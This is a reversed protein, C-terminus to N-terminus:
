VNANDPDELAKRLQDYDNPSIIIRYPNAVTAITVSEYGDQWAEARAQQVLPICCGDCGHVGASHGVGHICDLEGQRM